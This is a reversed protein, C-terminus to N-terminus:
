DVATHSPPKEKFENALNILEPFANTDFNFDGIGNEIFDHVAMKVIVDLNDRVIKKLYVEQKVGTAIGDLYNLIFTADRKVSRADPIRENQGKNRAEWIRTKSRELIESNIYGQCADITRWQRERNRAIKREKVLEGLQYYAIWAACVAVLATISEAAASLWEPSPMTDM